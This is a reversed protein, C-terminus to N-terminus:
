KNPHPANDLKVKGHDLLEFSYVVPVGKLYSMYAVYDLAEYFNENQEVGYTFLATTAGWDEVWSPVEEPPVIVAEASQV